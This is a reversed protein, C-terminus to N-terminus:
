ELRVHWVDHEFLWDLWAEQEESLEVEARMSSDLPSVLRLVGDDRVAEAKARDIWWEGPGTAGAPSRDDAFYPVEHRFRAPMPFPPLEPRGVAYVRVSM